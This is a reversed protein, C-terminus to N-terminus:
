SVLLVWSIDGGQSMNMFCQMSSVTPNIKVVQPDTLLQYFTAALRFPLVRNNLLTCALGPLLTCPLAICQRPRWSFASDGAGELPPRTCSVSLYPQAWEPLHLKVRSWRLVTEISCFHSHLHLYRVCAVVTRCCSCTCGSDFWFGNKDYTSHSSNHTSSHGWWNLHQLGLGYVESHLTM